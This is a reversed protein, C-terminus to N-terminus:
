HLLVEPEHDFTVESFDCGREGLETVLNFAKALSTLDDIALEIIELAETQIKATQIQQSKKGM